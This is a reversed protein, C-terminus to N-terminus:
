NTIDPVKDLAHYPVVPVDCTDVDDSLSIWYITHYPAVPEDCLLATYLSGVTGSAVELFEM